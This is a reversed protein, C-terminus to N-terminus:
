PPLGLGTKMATSREDAEAKSWAPEAPHERALRGYLDAAEVHLGLKSALRASREVLADDGPTWDLARRYNALAKRPSGHSEQQAGVWVLQRACEADDACGSSAINDLAQDAREKDGAETALVVLARLCESRDSVQEASAQLEDLGGSSDGGALKARAHLERPECIQPAAEWAEASAKLSAAVCLAQATGRCWPETLDAVRGEAARILPGPQGPARETADADLRTATAPLRLRLAIALSELVPVRMTGEPVLDIADAYSSVLRQAEELVTGLLDPMQEIALRYEFRAQSPSRAVLLRGLVLHAPAYVPARELTAAIWPMPNDDHAASDRFAVAFAFYPESPHRLLMPRVMDHIEGAALPHEIAAEHIAAVDDSLERGIGTAASAIAACGVVAAVAGVVATRKPWREIRWRAKHGPTGGVVVACCVVAATMLGPVESGLDCLEQVALAVLAAWAGAASTSRAQVASPRLAVALLVLGAIGVPLGWEVVWQVVVNEPYRMTVHGSYGTRFASFASEFAGRGCGFIPMSRVMRLATWALVFKSVETGLLETSAEESGALVVLTVGVAMGIGAVLSVRAEAGRPNQRGAHSAVVVIFTGLGMAIVGGRSAVWLQTAALFLVIVAGIVRPIRPEPAITAALAMCLSVNLYGALNNPNLLPAIHRASVPQSPEYLAFVRHAGFAPHLLAALALVVGTGVVVATLFGVGSRRRAIRLATVFALLYTAGKLFEVRTANPDLSLPAWRPSGEHLPFLARSWVDANYPAITHLLGLPLSVCQFITYSMLGLGVVLVLTASSRVAIPESGWWALMAAGTLTAAVVCLTLTHVSGLALASGAIALGLLGRSALARRSHGLAPREALLM